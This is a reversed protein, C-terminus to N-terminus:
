ETRTPAKATVSKDLCLRTYLMCYHAIMGGNKAKPHRGRGENEIAKDCASRLRMM